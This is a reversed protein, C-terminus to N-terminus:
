PVASDGEAPADFGFQRSLAQLHFAAATGAFLVAFAVM